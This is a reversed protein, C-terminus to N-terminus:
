SMKRALLLISTGFNSAVVCLILEALFFVFFQMHIDNNTHACHGNKLHTNTELLQLKLILTIKRVFHAEPCFRGIESFTHNSVYKKYCIQIKPVLYIQGIEVICHLFVCTLLMLPRSVTPKFFRDVLFFVGQVCSKRDRPLPPM